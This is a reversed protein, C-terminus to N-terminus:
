NKIKKRRRWSWWWRRKSDGDHFETWAMAVWARRWCRWRRTPRIGKNQLGWSKKFKHALHCKLEKMCVEFTVDFNSKLINCHNQAITTFYMGRIVLIKQHCLSSKEIFLIKRSIRKSTFWKKKSIWILSFILIQPIHFKGQHISMWM